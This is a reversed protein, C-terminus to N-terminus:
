SKKSSQVNLGEFVITFLWSSGAVACFLSSMLACLHSLLLNKVPLLEPSNSTDHILATLVPGELGATSSYTSISAYNFIRSVDETIGFLRCVFQPIVAPFNKKRRQKIHTFLVFQINFPFAIFPFACFSLTLHFFHIFPYLSLVKSQTPHKFPHFSSIICDIKRCAPWASLHCFAVDLSGNAVCIFISTCSQM